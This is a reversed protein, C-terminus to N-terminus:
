GGSKKLYKDLFALTVRSAKMQNEIKRFGHGEDPFLVYEVPTGNRKAGAVIEDSEIPLVRPDNSGQLVLLPTKIKDTNFLPSINYLRASDASSPDGLEDYLAVRASEWYAPISRLTRVWNTVGFLDVGVAFEQPYQIIGALAMFGGYSGGYIGIKGADIYNQQALWQKGAVCDKLDKDGHNKNDASYFTKGYGSSGRNNVALVAYGHNVLYQLSQQYGSRSQGGPGGHVWVLAPVKNGATATHPKYFIAPIETNDFSKFRVVTADVLDGPNIEPNLATTLRSLKKTKFNYHCIDVPSRDGGVYLIANEEGPSITVANVFGDKVKPFLLAKGTKHDFLFVKNRGDENIGILRYKYNDSLGFYMVDWNTQFVKQKSEKEINYKMVYNYEAGENTSYYFSYSDDEFAEASYTANGTAVSIKKMKGTQLNLLHLENKDSTIRKSLLLYNENPSLLEIDLADINKYLLENQWNAINMKYLDFNKPDRVNSSYYFATKNKNWNLFNAKENLGPTLDKASGDRHQLYLHNNENGGKDAQYIFDNSGLLYDVTYFSEKTNNSIPTKKKTAIDIEYINFVGSSNDHILLKNEAKNFKGGGFNVTKYFQEITYQKVKKPQTQAQLPLVSILLCITLFHRM